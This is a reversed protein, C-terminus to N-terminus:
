LSMEHVSALPAVLAIRTAAWPVEQSTGKAIQLIRDHDEQLRSIMKNLAVLGAAALIGSQRMGGGLVKRMRRARFDANKM